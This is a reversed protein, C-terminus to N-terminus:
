TNEIKRKFNSGIEKQKSTKGTNEFLTLSKIPKARFFYERWLLNICKHFCYFSWPLHGGPATCLLGATRQLQVFSMRQLILVIIWSAPAPMTRQVRTFLRAIERSSSFHMKGVLWFHQTYYCCRCRIVETIGSSM